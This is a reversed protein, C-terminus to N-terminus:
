DTVTITVTKEDSKLGNHATLDIIYSGKNEYIHTPNTEDGISMDGFNWSFSKADISLNTFKVEQGAKPENPEWSFNAIPKKGCSTFLLGFAVLIIIRILIM